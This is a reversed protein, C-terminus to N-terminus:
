CLFECLPYALRRRPCAVRRIDDVPVVLSEHLFGVGGLKPAEGRGRHFTLDYLEGALFRSSSANGRIQGVWRPLSAGNSCYSSGILAGGDM